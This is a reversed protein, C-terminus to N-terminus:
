LEGTKNAKHLLLEKVAARLWQIEEKILQIEFDDGNTTKAKIEVINHNLIPKPGRILNAEHSSAMYIYRYELELGGCLAMTQKSEPCLTRGRSNSYDLKVFSVSSCKFTEGNQTTISYYINERPTTKKGKYSQPLENIKPISYNELYGPRAQDYKAAMYGWITHNSQCALATSMNSILLVSSIGIINLAKKIYIKM